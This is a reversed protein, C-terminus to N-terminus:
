PRDYLDAMPMAVAGNHTRLVGDRAEFYGDETVVWGRRSVPDLVWMNEVGMHLYDDFRQQLRPFSDEPSLVEVCLYAPTTVVDEDEIPLRFVSVDPIRYRTASIRTRVEVIAELKLDKQQREFWNAVRTQLRGHNITGLNREVVVGDVYDCDPRYTTSLYEEVSVLTAADM